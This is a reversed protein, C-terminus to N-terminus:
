GVGSWWVGCAAVSHATAAMMCHCLLVVWEVAANVMVGPAAEEV